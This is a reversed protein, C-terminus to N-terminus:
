ILKRGDDGVKAKGILDFQAKQDGRIRRRVLSFLRLRQLATEYPVHLQRKVFEVALKQVCGLAHCDRSLIHSSAQIAYGLNPRIFAEYMPLLICPTLTAFTRKLYFLCEVPKKPLVAVNDDPSFGTKLLLGLEPATSVTQILQTNTSTRSTLSYTVPKSTDGFPLHEKKSPNLILEWDESWKYKAILCSQLAVAMKRPTVLKVDDAFQLHYITLNNALDNVYIIFLISGVVSGQPVGSAADALQSLSGNVSFQLSRWRLYYEVWNIVSPLNRLMKVLRTLSSPKSLWIIKAFDMYVLNITDVEDLWQTVTEKASLLNTVISRRPLFDHQRATLLSLQSLHSLLKKESSRRLFIAFSPRPVPQNQFAKPRNLPPNQPNSNSNSLALKWAGFKLLSLNFMRALVSSTHSNLAKFVKPKLGDPGAGKHPNFSDLAHRDELETILPDAM